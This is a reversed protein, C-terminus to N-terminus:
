SVSSPNEVVEFERLYGILIRIFVGQGAGVFSSPRGNYRTTKSGVEIRCVSKFMM